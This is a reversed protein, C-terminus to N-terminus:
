DKLFLFLLHLNYRSFKGWKIFAPGSKAICNTLIRYWVGTRFASSIYALGCTAICPAFNWGLRTARACLTLLSPTPLQNQKELESLVEIVHQTVEEDVNTKLIPSRGHTSVINTYVGSFSDATKSYSVAFERARKGSLVKHLNHNLMNRVNEPTRDIGEDSNSLTLSLHPPVQSPRATRQSAFSRTLQTTALLFIFFTDHLYM